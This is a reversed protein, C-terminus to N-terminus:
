SNSKSLDFYDYLESYEVAYFDVTNKIHEREDEASYDEIGIVNYGARKATDIAYAADEFVYLGEYSGGMFERAADYVDPDFKRKGVETTTFVADFYELLGNRKLAPEILFRDTATAVTMKVGNDKLCQLFEKIGDKAMAVNYYYYELIKIIEAKIEDPTLNLNYNKIMYEIGKAYGVSRFINSEEPVIGRMLLFAAAATDWIHMSDMLTGDVDFIAYKIEKM